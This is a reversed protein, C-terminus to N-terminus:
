QTAIVAIALWGNEIRCMGTTLGGLRIDTQFVNPTLPVPRQEPFIKEFVARLPIQSRSRINGNLSIIGDRAMYLLGDDAVKPKYYITVGFDRFVNGGVKLMNLSLEIKVKDDLFRIIVPNKEDFSIVVDDHEHLKEIEARELKKAFMKRLDGVTSKRGNLELQGIVANLASEHVKLDVFSGPLTLPAITHSGLSTDSSIKWSSMLWDPKTQSGSNEMTLGFNELPKLVNQKYKRNFEAFREGTDHDIQARVQAATRQRSEARIQEERSEYQSRAMSTAMKGFLPMDDMDTLIGTLQVHNNVNIKASSAQVGKETFRVVKSAQYIAVNNNFLTVMGTLARSTGSMQGAVNLTFILSDPSPQFHVEAVSDTRSKGYVQNGMIRDRFSIERQDSSPMFHNVLVESVFVKLNADGYTHLVAAGLQQYTESKSVSLRKALEYLREMSNQSSTKEYQEVAAALELPEVTDGSWTELLKLLDTAPRSQAVRDRSSKREENIQSRLMNSWDTLIIQQTVPILVNQMAPNIIVKTTADPSIECFQELDHIFDDLKTRTLFPRGYYSYDRREALRKLTQAALLLEERDRITKTAVAVTSQSANKTDLANLTLQWIIEHRYLAHVIKQLQTNASSPSMMNLLRQRTQEIEILTKRAKETSKGSSQLKDVIDLLQSHLRKLETANTDLMSVLAVPFLPSEISEDTAAATLGSLKSEGASPNRSIPKTRFTSTIAVGEDQKSAYDSTSAEGVFVFKRPEPEAATVITCFSVILFALLLRTLSVCGYGHKDVCLSLTSFYNRNPPQM